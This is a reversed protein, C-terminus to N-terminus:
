WVFVAKDIRCWKVPWQARAWFAPPDPNVWCASTKRSLPCGSCCTNACNCSWALSVRYRASWAKRTAHRACGTRVAPGVHTPHYHAARCRPHSMAQWDRLIPRSPRKGPAIWVPRVKAKPGLGTSTPLPATTFCISSTPWRTTASPRWGSACWSPLTFRCRATPAWCVWVSCSSIPGRRKGAILSCRM